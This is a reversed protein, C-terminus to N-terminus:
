ALFGEYNELVNMRNISAVPCLSRLVVEEITSGLIDKKHFISGTHHAMAILDIDQERAYKLIEVYPIGEWVATEIKMYGDMEPLYIEEMRNRAQNVLEEIESQTPVKGFQRGTIDVAHFLHLKSKNVKAFKLAFRFAALSAKSFDTGCLINRLNWLNKTFPRSIILVPCPASKAVRQMTDGTVNRYRIAEADEVQHHAGMIVADIKEKKIKRLIETGPAGITCDIECNSYQDILESYTDAIEEKVLTDYEKSYTEKEGTKVNIVFRSYGHSPLGFVHYIYLKANYKMAMDFAYSAADDCDPSVTTAFLINKFM